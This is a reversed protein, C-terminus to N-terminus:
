LSVMLPDTRISISWTLKTSTMLPVSRRASCRLAMPRYSPRWRLVLRRGPNSARRSKVLSVVMVSVLLVMVRSWGMLRPSCVMVSIVRRLGVAPSSRPTGMICSMCISTAARAMTNGRMVVGVRVVASTLPMSGASRMCAPKSTHVKKTGFACSAAEWGTYFVGPCVNGGDEM